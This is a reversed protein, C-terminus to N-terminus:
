KSLLIIIPGALLVAFIVIPQVYGLLLRFVTKRRNMQEVQITAM